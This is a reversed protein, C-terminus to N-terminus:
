LRASRSRAPVEAEDHAEVLVDMGLARAEEIMRRAEADDLVSLM